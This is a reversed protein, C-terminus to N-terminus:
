NKGRGREATHCIKEAGVAQTARFHGQDSRELTLYSIIVNGDDCWEPNTSQVEYNSGGGYGEHSHNVGAIADVSKQCTRIRPSGSAEWDWFPKSRSM